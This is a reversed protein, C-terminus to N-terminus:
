GHTSLITQIEQLIKNAEETRGERIAVHHQSTLEKQRQKLRYTSLHALLENIDNELMISTQYMKEFEFFAQSLEEQRKEERGEQLAEQFIGQSLSDLQDTITSIEVFRHAQELSDQWLALDVLRDLPNSSEPPAQPSKTTSLPARNSSKSRTKLQKMRQYLSTENLGLGQIVRQAYRDQELPNSHVSLLPIVKEEILKTKERESIGGQNITDIWYQYVDQAEKIVQKYLTPDKQILDAPDGDEPLRALRVEFDQTLALLSAKFAAQVGAKDSDFVFIIRDTFRRLLELHQTTLATGSTAVTNPYVSQGLVLDIQGEVVLVFNNVRIAQRATDLGYLEKSKHFIPTEPSNLYKADQENQGIYRGSFAVTKGAQNRLPFIIRDRFRDYTGGKEGQKILGAEQIDQESSGQSLLHAKLADWALPAYGLAFRMVQDQTFGRHTLYDRAHPHEELKKQWFIRAEEALAYYTDKNKKEGPSSRSQNSLPIGTEQSFKELVERFGLGEIKEVFSYIDGGEGCGFCKYTGRDPSVFFSPTKEQHFPCLGSYNIGAKKLEVYRGVVEQINLAERIAEIDNM